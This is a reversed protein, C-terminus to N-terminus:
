GLFSKEVHYVEVMHHPHYKMKATRLGPIGMDPERNIFEYDRALVEATERNIAQYIGRYDINAKEFHVVATDPSMREFVSFAEIEGEMRLALGRLGLDFLHDLSCHAAVKESELLPEEECGKRICWKALFEKVERFNDTSIEEATYPHNRVFYNLQNRIKLYRKGGLKALDEALYVYDFFDRHELFVLDPFEREMWKKRDPDVVSFPTDAGVKGALDMVELVIDLNEPGRPPRFRFEGERETMIILWDSVRAYHYRMYHQWCLMTSFLYDSHEPPYERYFDDFFEKDSFSIPKFDSISLMM